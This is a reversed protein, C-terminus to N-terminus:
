VRRYCMSFYLSLSMLQIPFQVPISPSAGATSLLHLEAQCCKEPLRWFRLLVRSQPLTLLLSIIDRLFLQQKNLLKWTFKLNLGTSNNFMFYTTICLFSSVAIRVAVTGSNELRKFIKRQIDLTPLTWSLFPLLTCLYFSAQMPMPEEILMPLTQLIVRCFFYFDFLSPFMQSFLFKAVLEEGRGTRLSNQNPQQRVLRFSPSRNNMEAKHVQALNRTVNISVQGQCSLFFHGIKLFCLSRAYPRCDIM